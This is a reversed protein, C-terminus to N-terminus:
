KQIEEVLRAIRDKEEHEYLEDLISGLQEGSM